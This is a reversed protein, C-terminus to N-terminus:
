RIKRNNRAENKLNKNIQRQISGKIYIIEKLDEPLRHITNRNLLEEHSICELNTVEFNQTNGDVFVINHKSPLKKKHHTEWLYINKHVLKNIGPVKILTYTRGSRKDLRCVETGDPLANKPNNGKKFRHMKSNEIAEPSMFDTIKKGKNFPIQGPKYVSDRKRQQIIEDPIILNMKKLRGTVGCYSRGLNQGITKVPMTLYNERIFQDDKETFTTRESLAKSRFGDIVKKPVFLKNNNYFRKCVEKSFGFHRAIEGRSMKLYNELIFKEIKPTVKTNM